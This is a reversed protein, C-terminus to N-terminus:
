LSLWREGAFAPQRPISSAGPDKLARAISLRKATSFSSSRNTLESQARGTHEGSM